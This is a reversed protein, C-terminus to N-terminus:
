LPQSMLTLSNSPRVLLLGLNELQSLVWLPFLCSRSNGNGVKERYEKTLEKGLQTPFVTKWEWEWDWFKPVSNKMGMGLGLIQSCQKENGNGIGVKFLFINPIENPFLTTEICGKEISPTLNVKFLSLKNLSFVLCSNACSSLSLMTSFMFSSNWSETNCEWSKPFHSAM